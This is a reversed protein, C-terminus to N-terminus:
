DLGTLIVRLTVPDAVAFGLPHFEQAYTVRVDNVVEQVTARPESPYGYDMYAWKGDTYRILCVNHGGFGKRNGEWESGGTKIWMVTLLRAYWINEWGQPPIVGGIPVMGHGVENNVVAAQYVAFEDCDGIFSKPDNNARWQVADPHSVADFLERWTDPRWKLGRVYVVLDKLSSFRRLPARRSREWLFQYLKYWLRMFGSALLGKVVVFRVLSLFTM